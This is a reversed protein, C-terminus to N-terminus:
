KVLDYENLLRDLKQSLKVVESDTFPKHQCMQILETRMKEISILLENAQLGTMSFM